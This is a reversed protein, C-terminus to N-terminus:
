RRVFPIHVTETLKAPEYFRATVGINGNIQVQTVPQNGSAGGDWQLFSWGSGPAATLTVWEGPAYCSRQPSATVTGTGIKTVTLSYCVDGLPSVTVDGFTADVLHAVLLVSGKTRTDTPDTRQVDWAAPENASRPWIKIRYDSSAPNGPTSEVQMRLNYWTNPAFDLPARFQSPPEGADTRITIMNGLRLSLYGYAGMEYWGMLPTESGSQVHGQWGLIVGVGGSSDVRNVMFSTTVQYNDWQIDGLAIVRDYGPASTRVGGTGTLGWLGDVVQAVDNIKSATDWAVTDPLPWTRTGLPTYQVTVTKGVGAVVTGTNLNVLRLELTNPGSRLVAGAPASYGAQARNYNPDFLEINFDGLNALRDNGLGGGQGLSAAIWAIGNLRYDLRYGASNQVNGVINIRDQPLGRAGFTQALGYWVDIVPTATQPVPAPRASGQGSRETAAYAIHSVPTLLLIVVSVILRLISKSARNM